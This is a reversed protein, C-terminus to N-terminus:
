RLHVKSVADVFLLAAFVATVASDIPMGHENNLATSNVIKEHGM